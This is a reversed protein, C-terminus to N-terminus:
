EGGPVKRAATLWKGAAAIVDDETKDGVIKCQMAESVHDSLAPTAGLALTAVVISKLLKNM